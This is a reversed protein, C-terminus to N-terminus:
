NRNIQSDPLTGVLVFGRSFYITFYAAAKLCIYNDKLHLKPTMNNLISELEWLFGMHWDEYPSLIPHLSLRSRYHSRLAETAEQRRRHVSQVWPGSGSAPAKMKIWLILLQATATSKREEWIETVCLFSYCHSSGKCIHCNKMLLWWNVKHSQM